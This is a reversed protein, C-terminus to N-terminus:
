ERVGLVVREGRYMGWRHGTMHPALFEADTLLEKWQEVTVGKAILEDVAQEPTQYPTGCYECTWRGDEYSLPAGCNKCNTEM